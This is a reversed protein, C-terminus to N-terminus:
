FKVSWTRNDIRVLYTGAAEGAITEKDSSVNVQRVVNGLLNFITIRKGAAGKIMLGTGQVSMQVGSAAIRANLATTRQQEVAISVDAAPM